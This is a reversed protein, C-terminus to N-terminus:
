IIVLHICIPLLNGLIKCQVFTDKEENLKWVSGDWSNDLMTEFVTVYLQLTLQRFSTTSTTDAQAVLFGQDRERPAAHIPGRCRACSAAAAATATTDDRM